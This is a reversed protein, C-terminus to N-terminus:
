VSSDTAPHTFLPIVRGLARSLLSHETQAMAEGGSMPWDIFDPPSREQAESRVM